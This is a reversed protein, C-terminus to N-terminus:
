KNEENYTCYNAGNKILLYPCEDKRSDCCFYKSSSNFSNITIRNRIAHHPITLRGNRTNREDLDCPIISNLHDELSKMPIDKMADANM